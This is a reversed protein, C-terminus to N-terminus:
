RPAARIVAQVVLDTLGKSYEQRHLRYAHHPIGSAVFVHDAQARHLGYVEHGGAEAWRGKSNKSSTDRRMMLSTFPM